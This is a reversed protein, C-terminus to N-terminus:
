ANDTGPPENLVVIIHLHLTAKVLATFFMGHPTPLTLCRAAHTLSQLTGLMDGFLSDSLNMNLLFSLVSLLLAPWGANLMTHVALLGTCATKTSPLLSWGTLAKHIDHTTNVEFIGQAEEITLLSMLPEEMSILPMSMMSKLLM